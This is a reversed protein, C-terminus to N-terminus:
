LDFSVTGILNTAGRQLYSPHFTPVVWFRDGPDRHVTGHFEEVRIRDHGHLGLLTRLPTAGMAMVVPHGEALLPDRHVACHDIASFEYSAGRLELAPPVCSLVNGVRFQGRNLNNRRLLRELMSGAAGVFPHGLAAEEFGPSE